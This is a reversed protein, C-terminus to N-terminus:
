KDGGSNRMIVTMRNVVHDRLRYAMVTLFPDDATNLINFHEWKCYNYQESTDETTPSGGDIATLDVAFLHYVTDASKVGFSMGLPILQDKTVHYGAEEALEELCTKVPDNDIVGGTISSLSFDEQKWCPTYEYRILVEQTPLMGSGLRFPLVAIKQGACSAEHSFIHGPVKKEPYSAKKLTIWKNEYLTEITLM